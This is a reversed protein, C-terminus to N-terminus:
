RELGSEIARLFYKLQEKPLNIIQELDSERSKLYLEQDFNNRENSNAYGWLGWRYREYLDNTAESSAICSECQGYLFNEGDHQGTAKNYAIGHSTCIVEKIFDCNSCKGTYKEGVKVDEGFSYDCNVCKHTNPDADCYRFKKNGCVKGEKYINEQKM